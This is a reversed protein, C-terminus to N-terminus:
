FVTATLTAYSVTSTASGSGVTLTLVYVQGPLTAATDVGQIGFTYLSAAAVTNAGTTAVTAGSTNTQRIKITASVGSTGVTFAFAGELLVGKVVALDTTVTVTCITTEAAASPSAAVAASYFFRPSLDVHEGSYQIPQPM